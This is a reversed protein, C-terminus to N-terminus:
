VRADLARRLPGVEHTRIYDAGQAIARLEVELTRAVVEPANPPLTGRLFSKRSVSIMVPLGFHRKFHPLDDLVAFSPAPDSSLFFGMGPDIVLRERAVGARELAPIREEFFRYLSDFVEETTNPARAAKETATIAHMVILKASSRALEPYVSADPFGKIDNLYALGKGMAWQMVESDAADISVPVDLATLVPEIRAIQDSAPVPNSRPNSSAGSLEIVDAGDELLKKAHAIAAEASLFKGGDSFSDETINVIGVLVSKM